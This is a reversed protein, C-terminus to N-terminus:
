KSLPTTSKVACLLRRAILCLVKSSGPFVLASRILFFFVKSLVLFVLLFPLLSFLQVASPLPGAFVPSLCLRRYPQPWCPSMSLSACPTFHGGIEGHDGHLVARSLCALPDFLLVALLVILRPLVLVGCTLASLKQMKPISSSYDNRRPLHTMKTQRIVDNVHNFGKKCASYKSLGGFLQTSFYEKPGLHTSFHKSFVNKPMMEENQNGSALEKASQRQGRDKRRYAKMKLERERSM